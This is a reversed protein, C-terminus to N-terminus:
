RPRFGAQEASRRLASAVLEAHTLHLFRGGEAITVVEASPLIDKWHSISDSCLRFLPDQEGLLISWRESNALTPPQQSSASRVMENLFGDMGLACQRTARVLIRMEEVNELAARDAASKRYAERMLREIVASGSRRCLLRVFRGIWQPNDLLITKGSGIMGERNRDLDDPPGPGLLVGGLIRDALAAAVNVALDSAGRSVILAAPIDLADLIDVLDSSATASPCGEVWDSMGFGAREFVVPRFGERKLHEIFHPSIARGMMTSHFIIVPIGRPPGHDAVAIRGQHWRRRVLRLPEASHEGLTIDVDCATALGTLVDVEAVIRALDVANAVGCAAFVEKLESKARSVSVGVTLAAQDRTAGFAIARALRGQSLTLGFLDAFLAVIERDHSTDGAALTLAHCVLDTQRRSGTKEMAAKVLKRATEYTVGVAASAKKLDGIDALAAVIRAEAPTFGCARAARKWALRDPRFAIVAYDSTGEELARRVAPDLPWNGSTAWSGAALAIPRGSIDDAIMSVHPNDSRIGRVVSGLPDPGGLWSLFKEDAIQIAGFKDCAASAFSGRFLDVPGGTNRDLASDLADAFADPLHHIAAGFGEPDDAFLHLPSMSPQVSNFRTLFALGRSTM